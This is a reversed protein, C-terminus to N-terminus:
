LASEGPASEPARHHRLWFAVWDFCRQAEAKSLTRAFAPDYALRQMDGPRSPEGVVDVLASALLSQWQQGLAATVETRPWLYLAARRLLEPLAQLAQWDGGAYQAQLTQLQKIAERRYAQQRWYRYRKWAFWAASCLALAILGWWFPANPLLTIAGPESVEHLHDLWHNGFGEQKYAPTM